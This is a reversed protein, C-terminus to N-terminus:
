MVSCTGHFKTEAFEDFIRTAFGKCNDVAWNYATNLENKQYIFNILDKMSCRGKDYSVLVIPTNRLKQKENEQVWSFYRSRQILIETDNKEISWYWNATELVVFQHNFFLQTIQWDSLPVKYVRINLIMENAEIGDHQSMDEILSEDNITFRTGTTKESDPDFKVQSSWKGGSKGRSSQSM